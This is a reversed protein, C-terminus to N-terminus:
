ALQRRTGTRTGRSRRRPSQYRSQRCCGGRFPDYPRFTCSRSSTHTRAERMARGETEEATAEVVKAVAERAEAKAVAERAEAKAVAETLVAKVAEVEVEMEDANSPNCSTQAFTHLSAPWLTQYRM